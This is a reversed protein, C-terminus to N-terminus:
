SWLDLYTICNLGISLCLMDLMIDVAHEEAFKALCHGPVPLLSSCHGKENKYSFKMKLKLGLETFFFFSLVYM